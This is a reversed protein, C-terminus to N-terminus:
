SYINKKVKIKKYLKKDNFFITDETVKKFYKQGNMTKVYVFDYDNFILNRKLINKPYLFQYNDTIIICDDLDDMCLKKFKTPVIDFYQEKLVILDFNYYLSLIYLLYRNKPSIFDNGIYGTKKHNSQKIIFEKKDLNKMFHQYLYNNLIQQKNNYKFIKSLLLIFDNNLVKYKSFLFKFYEKKFIDKFFYDKFIHQIKKITYVNTKNDILYEIIKKSILDNNFISVIYNM